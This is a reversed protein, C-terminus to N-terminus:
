ITENHNDSGDGNLKDDDKAADAMESKNYNVLKTANFEAEPIASVIQLLVTAILGSTRAENALRVDGSTANAESLTITDRLTGVVTKHSMKRM